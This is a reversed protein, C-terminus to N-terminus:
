ERALRILLIEPRSSTRVQPGWVSVGSSTICTTDGKSIMGHSNEFITSTIWNIPWLQGHHTHGSLILRAGAQAAEDLSRPQHDLVILSHPRSNTTNALKQVIARLPTRQFGHRAAAWDRRGVIIYDGAIIAEDDLLRIGTRSIWSFGAEPALIYEHNGPCAFVGHRARFGRLITGAAFEKDEEPSMDIIDGGILILDPRLANVTEVITHLRDPSTSTGIHLDSLFVIRAAEGAPPVAEPAGAPALSRTPVTYERVILGRANIAGALTIALALGGATLLRAVRSFFGALGQLTSIRGAALHLIWLVALLLVFYFFFALWYSGAEHLSSVLWGDIGNRILLSSLIWGSGLLIYIALTISRAWTTDHLSQILSRGVFVHIAIYSILIVLFIPIMTRAKM